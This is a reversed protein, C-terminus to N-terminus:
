PLQFDSKCNGGDLTAEALPDQIPLDITTTDTLDDDSDLGGEVETDLAFPPQWGEPPVIKCIGYHLKRSATAIREIYELPKAFEEM